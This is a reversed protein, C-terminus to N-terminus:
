HILSGDKFHTHGGIVMGQRIKEVASRFTALRTYEKMTRHYGALAIKKREQEHQLYYRILSIMEDISRYAVVEKGIAYIEDLGEPCDCIQMVGNAPLEYMRLNSPGYSMHINVGIKSKQYTEVIQESPIERIQYMKNKISRIAELFYRMSVKGYTRYFSIPNGLISKITWGRGYIKAQPFEERIRNLRGIKLGHGGIFVLDTERDRQFIDEETLDKRYAIETVGYPWLDARKVGWEIFKDTIRTRADYNVGMSFAHDFAHVYPKSCHHSGEPDDGSVLVTYIKKQGLKKVYEPHFINSYNVLLVDHTEALKGIYNYFRMLRPDRRYYLQNLKKPNFVGRYDLEKRWNVPTINYGAAQWSRIEEKVFPEFYPAHAWSYIINM